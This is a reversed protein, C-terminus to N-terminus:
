SKEHNSKEVPPSEGNLSKELTLRNKGEVRQYSISDCFKSMIYRGLGGIKRKCIDSSFNPNTPQTQDFPEGCDEITVVFRDNETKWRIWLKGEKNGSYSYSVINTCAEDISTELKYLNKEVMGCKGAKDRVFQCINALEELTASFERANSESNM